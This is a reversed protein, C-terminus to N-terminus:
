IPKARGSKPKVGIASHVRKIDLMFTLSDIQAIWNPIDALENNAQALRVQEEVHRSLPEYLKDLWEIPEFLAGKIRERDLMGKEIGTSIRVLFRKTIEVHQHVTFGEIEPGKYYPSSGPNWYGSALNEWTLGEAIKPHATHDALTEQVMSAVVLHSFSSPSQFEQIIQETFLARRDHSAQQRGLLWAALAGCFAGVVSSLFDSWVIM